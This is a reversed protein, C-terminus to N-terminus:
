RAIAAFLIWISALFCNTTLLVLVIDIWLQRAVDHVRAIDLQESCCLGFCSMTAVQATQQSPM